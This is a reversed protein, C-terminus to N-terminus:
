LGYDIVNKVMPHRRAKMLAINARWGDIDDWGVDMCHMYTEKSARNAKFWACVSIIQDHINQVDAKENFKEEM